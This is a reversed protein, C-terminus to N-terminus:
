FEHFFENERNFGRVQPMSDVLTIANYRFGWASRIL